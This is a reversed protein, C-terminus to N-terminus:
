GLVSSGDFFESVRHDPRPIAPPLLQGLWHPDQRDPTEGSKESMVIDYTAGHPENNVPFSPSAEDSPVNLWIPSTGDGSM